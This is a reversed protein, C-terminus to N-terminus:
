HCSSLRLNWTPHPLVSGACEQVTDDDGEEKEDINVEKVHTGSLQETTHDVANLRMAEKNLM